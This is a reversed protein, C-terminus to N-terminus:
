IIARKSKKFEIVKLFDHSLKDVGVYDRVSNQFDFLKDICKNAQEHTVSISLIMCESHLEQAQNLLKAPLYMFYQELLDNYKTVSMNESAKQKAKVKANASSEGLWVDVTTIYSNLDFLLPALKDFFETQKSYLVQIPHTKIQNKYKRNELLFNFFFGVCASVLSILAGFIFQM